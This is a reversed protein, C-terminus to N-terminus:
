ARPAVVLETTYELTVRSGHQDIVSRLGSLLRGREGEALMRHVSETMLLAVYDDRDYTLHWDYTRRTLPGFLGSAALDDDVGGKRAWLPKRDRCDPAHLRYMEEMETAVVSDAAPAGRNWFVALWGSEVLADHAKIWKVDPAVWHWSQAAAVLDFRARQVRWNEFLTQEITVNPFDECRRAAVAVMDGDPELALVEFGAVALPETAKGTGSGVELVRAKEPVGTIARLDDVLEQPYGPRLRDYTEAVEGFVLRQERREPGTM